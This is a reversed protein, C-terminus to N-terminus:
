ELLVFAAWYYPDYKKRLETRTANFAKKIDKETFLNKYFTVMFEETEKDAVQWLSMVLFRVGAMKFARQLGYVGESGRIDGLGTECASMVVMQTRRMDIQSVEMATLVGDDGEAPENRNWVRNAGAFVLGSRMLPNSNRVFNSVGFGRDGGRFVAEGYETHQQKEKKMSEPDPFFFGHTSIHLIDSNGALTKFRGEEAVSDQLYIVMANEKLLIDAIKETETRTGKLYKWIEKNSDETTYAIGGFIGAKLSSAFDFSGPLVIKGTTSQININFNDTLYWDVKDGLAAFSVKHLLGSPSIYVTKIGVLHDELPKWILNYLIDKNQETTGYISNIYSHNNGGYIGLVHELQKEEFLSIMEPYKSDPLILLACYLVSDYRNSGGKRFHIYEVAAEGPKLHDRVDEWKLQMVKNYSSFANSGVVLEKELENAQNELVAPDKQRFALPTSYLNSLEKKLLIWKEYKNVLSTDNSSLIAHRMATTSRLLMGKNQIVMNYVNGAINSNKEKRRLAYTYFYELDSSKTKYYLEKENESLFSFNQRINHNIIDLYELILKEETAEDGVSRYLAALIKLIFVYDPHYEGLRNKIKDQTGVVMRLLMKTLVNRNSENYRLMHDALEFGIYKIQYKIFLPELTIWLDDTKGFYIYTGPSIKNVHSLSKFLSQNNKTQLEYIKNEALDNKQMAAYVVALNNRLYTFDSHKENLVSRMINNANTLLTEALRSRETMDSESSFYGCSIHCAALNNLSTAYLPHEKGIMAPITDASAILLPMAKSYNGIKNYLVALNNRIITYYMPSEGSTNSYINNARVLLPEANKYNGTNYYLVALNNLAAAHDPSDDLNSNKQKTIIDNFLSEAHRFDGRNQAIIALHSLYNIYYTHDKGHLKEFIDGAETLIKEAKGLYVMDVASCGMDNYLIAMNVLTLAYSISETGYIKKCLDKAKTMLPLANDYEGAAAYLIGLNSITKMYEPSSERNLSKWVKQEEETFYVAKRYSGLHFYSESIGHLMRAYLTDKEGYKGRVYALAKEAHKLAAPFNGNKICEVRLSDDNHWTQCFTINIAILQICVLFYLTKM